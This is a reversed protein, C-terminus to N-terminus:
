GMVFRLKSHLLAYSVFLSLLLISVFLGISGMVVSEKLLGVFWPYQLFYFILIHHIIYIGMSNKDLVRLLTNGTHLRQSLIFLSVVVLYGALRSLGITDFFMAMYADTGTKGVLLVTVGLAVGLLPLVLNGKGPKFRKLLSPSIMGLYFIPFYYIMRDMCFLHLPRSLFTIKLVCCSFVYSAILILLKPMDGEPMLVKCLLSSVIFIGLLCVLFWLHYFGKLFAMPSYFDPQLALMVGGYWIPCM